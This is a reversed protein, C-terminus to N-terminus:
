KKSILIRDKQHSVKLDHTLALNELQDSPDTLRIRGSVPRAGLEPEALKITLTTHAQLDAVVEELPSARYEAWEKRWRAVEEPEHAGLRRLEGEEVVASEEATLDMDSGFWENSSLRVAGSSVTVRVRYPTRSVEFSTGINRIEAQGARVRFVRDPDAVVDAFITGRILEVAREQRSYSVSVAAGGALILESGDDLEITRVVGRPATFHQVEEARTEADPVGAYSGVAVLIGIAVLFVQARAPSRGRPQLSSLANDIESGM